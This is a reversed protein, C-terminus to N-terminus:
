RPQSFRIDEIVWGSGTQRVTMTATSTQGYDKGELTSVYRRVFVITGGGNAPKFQRDSIDVVIRTANKFADRHSDAVRGSLGPWIRRLANFDRAELAARYREVLENMGEEATPSKKEPVPSPTPAPPPASSVPPSPPSGVPSAPLSEPVGSAPPVSPMTPNAPKPPDTRPSETKAPDAPADRRNGRGEAAATTGPKRTDAAPKSEPRTAPAPAPRNPDPSAAPPDAPKAGGDAASTTPTQPPPPLANAQSVPPAGPGSPGSPTSTSDVAPDTGNMLWIAAGGVLAVILVGAAVLPWPKSRSSEPTVGSIAQRTDSDIPTTPSTGRTGSVHPDSGAVVTPPPSAASGPMSSAGTRSMPLRSPSTQGHVSDSVLRTTDSPGIIPAFVTPSDFQRRVAELDARLESMNQYRQDLRKALARDVIQTLEVPVTPDVHDLPEPAEQLIKMLTAAFSEAEFAKRGSFMEYLLVGTSFIDARHDAKEGRVQEPAMYNITGMVMGTNTLQSAGLRALGFDLIKVVGANTIFVNAPKIDRHVVGRSHAYELGECIQIAIDIKFTLAPRNHASLRQQLDEGELFEMALFPQGNEEGLDHVTIINKHSLAGAARAERFFRERMGPQDHIQAGILKVAVTRQLLTDFGRYVVGMGGRGLRASLEYRGIREM